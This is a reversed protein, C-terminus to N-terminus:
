KLACRQSTERGILSSFNARITTLGQLSIAASRQTIELEQPDLDIEYCRGVGERSVNRHISIISESQIKYAVEQNLWSSVLMRSPATQLCAKVLNLISQAPGYVASGSGVNGIFYGLKRSHEILTSLKEADDPYLALIPEGRILILNPSMLMHKAHLGLIDAQVDSLPVEYNKAIVTRLRAVDITTGPSMIRNRPVGSAQHFVEQLEDTPSTINIIIPPNSYGEINQAISYILPTNQMLFYKTDSIEEPRQVSASNIILDAKNLHEYSDYIRVSPLKSVGDLTLYHELDLLMAAVEQKRTTFILFEQESLELLMKPLLQKAIGGMGILAIKSSV